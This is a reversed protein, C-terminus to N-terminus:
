KATNGTAHIGSDKTGANLLEAVDDPVCIGNWDCNKELANELEQKRTMFETQAKERALFASEVSKLSAAHNVLAEQLRTEADILRRELKTENRFSVLLWGIFFLCIGIFLLKGRLPSDIM